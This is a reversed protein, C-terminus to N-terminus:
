RVTGTARPSPPVVEAELVEQLVRLLFSGEGYALWRGVCIVGVPVLLLSAPTWLEDAEGGVILAVGVAGVVLAWLAMFALTGKSLGYALSRGVSIVAVLGLLMMAPYYFLDAEGQAIFTVGLAVVGLAWLAPLVRLSFSGGEYKLSRGVCIVAVLGLLMGAPYNLLDAETQAIFGVAPIAVAALTWLGTLALVAKSVGVQVTVVTGAPTPVFRGTAVTQFSTVSGLSRRVSFGQCDVSGALPCGQLRARLRERCEEPSLRTLLRHRELAFSNM